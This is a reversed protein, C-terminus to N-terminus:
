TLTLFIGCETGGMRFCSASTMKCDNPPSTRSRCGRNDPLLEGGVYLWVARNRSYGEASEIGCQSGAMIRELQDHHMYSPIMDGFMWRTIVIDPLLKGRVSLCLFLRGSPRRKLFKSILEDLVLKSTTSSTLLTRLVVPKWHAIVLTTNKTIM